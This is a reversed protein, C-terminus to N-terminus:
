QRSRILRQSSHFIRGAPPSLRRAAGSLREDLLLVEARTRKGLNAAFARVRATLPGATGDMNCPIGVVCLAPAYESCLRDVQRWDPNGNNATVTTLPRATGTLTNGVAVGIRRLGYDFALVTRAPDANM